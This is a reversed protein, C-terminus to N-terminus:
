SKIGAPWKVTSSLAAAPRDLSPVKQSVRASWRHALHTNLKGVKRIHVRVGTVDKFTCTYKAGSGCLSGCLM